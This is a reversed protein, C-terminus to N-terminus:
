PGPSARIGLLGLMATETDHMGFEQDLDPAFYPIM